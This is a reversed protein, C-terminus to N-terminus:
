ISPKRFIAINKVPLELQWGMRGAIWQMTEARYFAVHTPDRRYYWNEFAALEDTDDPGNPGDVFSTMVGLVGGLRLMGDLRSFEDGPRHMHEATETCVVFDYTRELLEPRPDFIPDYGEVKFGDERMMAVLAPGPGAGYDLGFAGPTLLPKVRDWLRALFARYDPDHVENNHELYRSKEAALSPLDDLGVSILLCVGCRFFRRGGLSASDQLVLETEPASCLRCSQTLHGAM